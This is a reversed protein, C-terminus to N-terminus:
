WKDLEFWIIYLIQALKQRVEKNFSGLDILFRDALEKCPNKRWVVNENTYETQQREKESM